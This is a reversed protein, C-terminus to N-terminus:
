IIEKKKKYLFIFYCRLLNTKQWITAYDAVFTVKM